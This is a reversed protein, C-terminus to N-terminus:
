IIPRETFPTVMLPIKQAPPSLLNPNYQSQIEMHHMITGSPRIAANTSFSGTSATYKTM